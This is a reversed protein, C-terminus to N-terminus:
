TINSMDPSTDPFEVGFLDFGMTMSVGGDWLSLSREPDTSVYDWTLVGPPVSIASAERSSIGVAVEGVALVGPGLPPVGGASAFWRQSFALLARPYSSAVLDDM